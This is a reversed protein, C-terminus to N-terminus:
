VPKKNNKKSEARVGGSRMWMSKLVQRVAPAGVSGDADSFEDFMTQLKRAFEEANPKGAPQRQQQDQGQEQDQAPQGQQDAPQEEAGPVGDTVEKGQEQNALMKQNAFITYMTEWVALYEQKTLVNDPAKPNAALTQLKELASTAHPGLRASGIIQEMAALYGKINGSGISAAPEPKAGPGGQDIWNIIAASSEVPVNPFSRSKWQEYPDMFWARFEQGRKFNDIMRGLGAIIELENLKEIDSTKM